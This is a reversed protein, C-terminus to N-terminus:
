LLTQVRSAAGAVAISVFPCIPVWRGQRCRPDRAGLGVGSYIKVCPAGGRCSAIMDCLGCSRPARRVAGQHARVVEGLTGSHLNGVVLPTQYALGCPYVFGTRLDVYAFDMKYWNCLTLRQKSELAAFDSVSLIGPQILVQIRTKMCELRHTFDKWEGANLGKEPCRRGRGKPSFSLFTITDAGLEDCMRVTEAACGATERSATSLVDCRVGTQTAARLSRIAKSLTGSGRIHDHIARDGDISFQLRIGHKAFYAIDVDNLLTGNTTVAIRIHGVRRVIAIAAYLDSRRVLPEGGAFSLSVCSGGAIARRLLMPDFPKEEKEPYSDASCYACRLNCRSTLHVTLHRPTTM